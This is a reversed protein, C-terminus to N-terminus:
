SIELVVKINYTIAKRVEEETPIHNQELLAKASLIMGLTCFGCGVTVHEVFTEHLSLLRGLIM